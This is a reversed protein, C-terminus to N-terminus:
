SLDTLDRNDKVVITIKEQPDLYDSLTALFMAYGTPYHEAEASMFRLQCEALEGFKKEGTIFHLRVLNYAMASNGRFVAGDYTEKPHLFKMQMTMWCVKEVTSDKVGVLLYHIKKM